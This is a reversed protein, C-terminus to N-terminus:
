QRTSTWATSSPCFLTQLDNSGCIEKELERKDQELLLCLETKLSKPVSPFMAPYFSACVSQLMHGPSIIARFRSFYITQKTRSYYDKPLKTREERCSSSPIRIESSIPHGLAPWKPCLPLPSKGCWPAGHHHYLGQQM